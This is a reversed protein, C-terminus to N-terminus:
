FSRSLALVSVSDTVQETHDGAVEKQVQEDATQTYFGILQIPNRKKPTSTYEVRSLVCIASLWVSATESVADTKGM